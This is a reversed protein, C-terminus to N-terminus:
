EYRLAVLPDIRSARRAPWYAAATAIGLLLLSAGILTVPDSGKLGFLLNGAVRGGAVAAVIGFGTGVAVLGLMDRLVIWRLQRPRAGLALRIGMEKKRGAVDYSLIGYIGISALSIALLGFFTALRAVLEETAVTRDVLETLTTSTLVPLSSAVEKIARRIELASGSTRVALHPLNGPSQSYPLFILPPTDERIHNYTFDRVVGVIVAGSDRGAFRFHRGLPSTGPFFKRALTENVIATKPATFSDQPGFARGAHLPVGMTEFYRPTIFNGRVVHAERDGPVLISDGWIGRSYTVRSFAASEVGPLGNIRELLRDYLSTLQAGRYGTQRADLEFMLVNQKNFGIDLARLNGLSRVFAGAAALLLLTMAVQAVVLSRGLRFSKRGREARIAILAPALGFLLGTALSVLATFALMRPNLGVALVPILAGSVFRVLFVSAWWAFLAGLAGGASALVISETLMQRLLRARSAGIAVRVAMEKQRAAARAMLLNAINACAILLVAGTLALLFVLPEAYRARLSSIGRRAPHMEVHTREIARLRQPSPQSGAYQRLLQRFIVDVNAQAQRESVGPRLRGFMQLCSLARNDLWSGRSDVSAEMALPLWFEPAAGVKEGFFGRPAVGAIRVVVGIQGTKRIVITKGIVRPDRAFRRDWYSYSLVAMPAAGPKDDEAGLTRGILAPVGLVAFYNGSVLKPTALEPEAHDIEILMRDAYSLFALLGSFVQNRAEFEKYVPYSFMGWKGFPDDDMSASSVGDGLLVLSEANKAPLKELMVTDILSFIATNAGIGLALSLVAVGTV